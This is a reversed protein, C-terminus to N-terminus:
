RFGKLNADPRGIRTPAAVVRAPRNTGATRSQGQSPIQTSAFANCGRRLATALKQREKHWGNARPTLATFVPGIVAAHDFRLHGGGTIQCTWGQDAAWRIMDRGDASGVRPPRITAREPGRARARNM